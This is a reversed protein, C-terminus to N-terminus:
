ESAKADILLHHEYDSHYGFRKRYLVVLAAYLDSCEAMNYNAGDADCNFWSTGVLRCYLHMFYYFLADEGLRAFVTCGPLDFVADAFQEGFLEEQTYQKTLRIADTEAVLMSDTSFDPRFNEVPQAMELQNIVIDLLRDYVKLPHSM